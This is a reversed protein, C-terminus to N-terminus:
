FILNTRCSLAMKGKPIRIQQTAFREAIDPKNKMEEPGACFRVHFTNVRRPPKFCDFIFHQPSLSEPDEGGWSPFSDLFGIFSPLVDCPVHILGIVAEVM